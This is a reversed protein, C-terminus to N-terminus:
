AAGGRPDLTAEREVTLVRDAIRVQPRRGFGHYVRIRRSDAIPKGDLARITFLAGEPYDIDYYRKAYFAIFEPGAALFGVNPLTAAECDYDATGRNAIITVGNAFTVREVQRDDTLYEHDTMQVLATLQNLPSAVEYVNKVLRDYWNLDQGWGQDGRLFVSDPSYGQLWWTDWGRVENSLNEQLYRRHPFTLYPMRGRSVSDFIVQDDLTGWPWSEFNVCERYVLEFLPIPHGYDHLPRAADLGMSDFIPVAWEDAIESGVVPVQSRMFDVLHQYTDITDRFTLPHEPSFCQVLSIAAIQDAYVYNLGFLERFQTYNRCAHNIMRAPCCQYMEWRPIGIVAGGELKSGDARVVADSAQTSPSAKFLIVSNDHVGFLWGLKRVRKSARALGENGGCELAAPFVDPYDMDYGRRTWAKVNVLAREIGLHNKFHEAVEAVEDFTYDVRSEGEAIFDAWGEGKGRGWKPAVTFRLAGLNKALEPTRSIKDKLPLFFGREKAVCRYYKAVEVYGAHELFHLSLSDAQRNLRVSSNIQSSNDSGKGGRLSAEVSPDNWTIVVTSDGQVLAFMSMNWKGEGSYTGVVRSTKALPTLSREEAEYAFISGVPVVMGQYVPLVAYDLQGSIPLADDIIRVSDVSWRSDKTLVRYGMELVHGGRALAFKFEVHLSKGDALQVVPSHILRIEAEEEVVKDFRDVATTVRQGERTTLVMSCLRGKPGLWVQKTPKHLIRFEGNDQHFSIQLTSNEIAAGDLM